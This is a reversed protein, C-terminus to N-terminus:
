LEKIKINRFWVKDDHDQLAIYGSNSTAFDEWQSFKSNKVMNKWEEGNVPFETIKVGNLMVWGKNEKHDIHIVQKNWEGAPNTVDKTPAVMDYLAGATRNLGNKADPHRENDLIQIEPGTYFPEDYKEMEQIGWLIGSNGGKSIKWEVQLEFNEYKENTMLYEKIRKDGRAPTFSIVGNQVKWQSSISDRKYVQWKKLDNGEFLTDWNDKQQNSSTMVESKLKRSHDSEKKENNCAFLLLTVSGIIFIRKM